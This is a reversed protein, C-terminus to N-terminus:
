DLPLRIEFEVGESGPLNHASVTGGHAVAVLRVIYLGLGLHPSKGRKERVSVLSEFLRGTLEDPLTSGTNRVALGCFEGEPRLLVTVQDDDSSLTM